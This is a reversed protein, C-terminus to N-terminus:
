FYCHLKNHLSQLISDCFCQQDPRSVSSNPILEIYQSVITESSSISWHVHGQILRHPNSSNSFPSNFLNSLHPEAQNDCSARSLRPFCNHLTSKPPDPFMLMNHKWGNHSKKKEIQQKRSCWKQSFYCLLNQGILQHIKIPNRIDCLVGLLLSNQIYKKCFLIWTNVKFLLINVPGLNSWMGTFLHPPTSRLLFWFSEVSTSIKDSYFTNKSCLLFDTRFAKSLSVRSM